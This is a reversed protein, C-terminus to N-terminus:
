QEACPLYYSSSCIGSGSSFYTSTTNNSVGITGTLSGSSSSWTSCNTSYGSWWNVSTTTVSNTLTSPLLSSSDTTGILTTGDTRYYSTSAKLPNTTSGALVAKYTKTTDPRNSDTNCLNDAGAYGGM